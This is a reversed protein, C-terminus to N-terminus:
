ALPRGRHLNRAVKAQTAEAIARWWAKWGTKGRLGWNLYIRLFRLKETRTVLPHDRFSTHLRALNAARRRRSIRDRRRVGVLDILWFQHVDPDLATLLNPAKLDRHSLGRRHLERVVRALAEVRPRLRVTRGEAPQALLRRAWEHLDTAGDIKETLVYGERPRGGSYRHFMVLPRVTPLGRERLGHGYVWSRLAGTPRLLGLWADSRRRVQFRKLIVRRGDPWGFEAVTSSPSRKLMRVWPQDFIADPDALLDSLGSPDLGRLAYGRLKEQRLRLYYRNSARCRRDRERWFRRNSTWTLQEILRGAQGIPAPVISGLAAAYSRWFRLRDTRSARLIFYRNFIVLNQQCDTWRILRGTPRLRVAHLDILAFEPPGDSSWRVLINGPHLDHHFVAAAHLRAVFAGLMESFVQRAEFAGTQDHEIVALLTRADSLTETVLWSSGPPESVGWALPNPTSVGRSQCECALQYERSAKPPRLWSRIRGRLGIPRDQKLHVDLDQDIARYVTRHPGHKVVHVESSRLWDTFSGGDRFRLRLRDSLQWRIGDVDKAFVSPM